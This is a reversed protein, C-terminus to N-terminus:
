SLLCRISAIRSCLLQPPELERGVEDFKRYGRQCVRKNGAQIFLCMGKGVQYRASHGCYIRKNNHYCVKEEEKKTEKMHTREDAGEEARQENTFIGFDMSNGM